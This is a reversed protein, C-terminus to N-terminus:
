VSLSLYQIIEGKHPIYVYFHFFIIPPNRLLGTTLVEGESGLPAAETGPPYALIGCAKHGLLCFM